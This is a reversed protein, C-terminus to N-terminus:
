AVPGPKVQMGHLRAVWQTEIGQGVMEITRGPGAETEIAPENGSSRSRPCSGGDRDMEGIGVDWRDILQSPPRGGGRDRKRSMVCGSHSVPGGREDLDCSPHRRSGRLSAEVGHTPVGLQGDDTPPLDGSLHKGLRSSAVASASDALNWTAM